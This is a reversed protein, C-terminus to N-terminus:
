KAKYKRLLDSIAEDILRSKSGRGQLACLQNFRTKLTSDIWATMRDHNAEFESLRKQPLSSDPTIQDESFSPSEPLNVGGETPQLLPNNFVRKKSPNTSM